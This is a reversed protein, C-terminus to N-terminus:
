IQNKTACGDRDRFGRACGTSFGRLRRGSPGVADAPLNPSGAAATLEKVGGHGMGRAEIYNGEVFVRSILWKRRICRLERCCGRRAPMARASASQADRGFMGKKNGGEVM